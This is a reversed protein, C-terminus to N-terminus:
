IQPSHLGTWLMSITIRWGSRPRKPSDGLSPLLQSKLIDVYQNADMRGEIEALHGVGEWGICGWVM